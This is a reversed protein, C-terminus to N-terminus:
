GGPSAHQAPQATPTSALRSWGRRGLSAIRGPTRASDNWVKEVRDKVEEATAFVQNAFNGRKLFQFVTEVPNLEPSYPPLHLLSVDDPIELSRSRHWGAGDLVALAHRGQPVASGIEVLHRNMEDTNARNCVHGASMGSEPCIASFLDCYGSRYDRPVRPRSGRRARVRTQMGMKALRAEDELWVDASAPDTGEPLSSIAIASFYSRFEEQAEREDGPHLPRPSLRRFGPARMLRRVAEGSMVVDFVEKIRNSTM